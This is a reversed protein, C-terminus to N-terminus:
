LAPHGHRIVVPSSNRYILTPRIKRSMRRPMSTMARDAARHRRRQAAVQCPVPGRGKQLWANDHHRQKRGPPRHTGGFAEGM